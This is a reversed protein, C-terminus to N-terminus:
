WRGTRVFPSDTKHFLSPPPTHELSSERREAGSVFGAARSQAAAMQVARGARGAWVVSHSAPSPGPLETPSNIVSWNWMKQKYAQLLLRQHPGHMVIKFVIFLDGRRKCLSSVTQLVDGETASSSQDFPSLFVYIVERQLVILHDVCLHIRLIEVSLSRHLGMSCCVEDGRHVAWHIERGETSMSSSFVSQKPAQSNQSYWYCWGGGFFNYYGDCKSMM